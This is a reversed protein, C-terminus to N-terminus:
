IELIRLIRKKDNKSIKQIAEGDIKQAKEDTGPKSSPIMSIRNGKFEFKLIADKECFQPRLRM